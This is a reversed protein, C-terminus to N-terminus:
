PVVAVSVAGSIAGGVELQVAFTDGFTLKEPLHFNIQMAGAVLGPADGAYLVELSTRGAALVAVPLSAPGAQTIPVLQGNNWASTGGGSAFITVISGAKAPNQPSNPSGDQNLAAALGTQSNQFISPVAPRVALLPGDITGSPTVIQLHTFDQGWVEKPVITNIQTPGAYLLPAAIGDFLVQSGGLSSTFAGNQVQGSQATLPGIGTGYLSLLESPAAFASPPGSAANAIALLSGGVTTTEIWLTGAQGLAVFNGAPTLTVGAGRSNDPGTYLDEVATADVSLQAVYSSGSVPVGNVVPLTNPDAKGTIIVRGGLDIVLGNVEAGETGSVGGFFTSWILHTASSNLKAVLGGTQSSAPLTPQVVGATTPFTSPASGGVVVNNATDLAVANIQVSPGLPYYLPRTPNLFTSWVLTRPVSSSFKAAFGASGLDYGCLCTTGLVGPTVPLDLADTVGAVVIDGSAGLAVARVSTHPFAPLCHSGGTCDVKDGGFYTSYLIASGDPSLETLFAYSTNGFATNAPPKSQYADSTLPFDAATTDGAVYINGAADLAVANANAPAGLLKSFVIGRLQADLKMVFAGVDTILGSPQSTLPFGHKNASGAIVLNGQSDAAAATNFTAGFDFSALPMGNADMKIVRTLTRGSIDTVASVSFLNGTKDTTIVRASAQDGIDLYRLLIQNAAGAAIHCSAALLCVRVTSSLNV